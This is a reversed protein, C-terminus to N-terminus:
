HSQRDTGLRPNEIFARITETSVPATRVGPGPEVAIPQFPFRDAV